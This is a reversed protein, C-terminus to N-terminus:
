GYLKPAPPLDVFEIVVPSLDQISETLYDIKFDGGTQISHTRNIYFLM